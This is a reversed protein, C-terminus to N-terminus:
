GSRISSNYYLTPSKRHIPHYNNSFLYYSHLFTRVILDENQLGNNNADVKDLDWLSKGWDVCLQLFNPM